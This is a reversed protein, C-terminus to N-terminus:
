YSQSLNFLSFMALHGARSRITLFGRTLDTRVQDVLDGVCVLVEVAGTHQQTM